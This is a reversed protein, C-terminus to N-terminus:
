SSNAVINDIHEQKVENDKIVNEYNEQAANKEPLLEKEIRTYSCHQILSKLVEQLEAYENRQGLLDLSPLM